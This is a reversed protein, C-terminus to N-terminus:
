FYLHLIKLIEPDDIFQLGFDEIHHEFDKVIQGMNEEMEVKLGFQVVWLTEINWFCEQMGSQLFQGKQRSHEMEM